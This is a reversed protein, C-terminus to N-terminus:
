KRKESRRTRVVAGALEFPEGQAPPAALERSSEVSKDVM